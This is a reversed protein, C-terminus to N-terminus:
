GLAFPHYCPQLQIQPDALSALRKWDEEWDEDFREGGRWSGADALGDLSGLETQHM